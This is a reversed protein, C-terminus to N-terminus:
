GITEVGCPAPEFEVPFFGADSMMQDAKRGDDRCYLLVVGLGGAGMLKGGSVAAGARLDDYLDDPFCLNQVGSARKVCWHEHLLESWGALDGAELAAASAHGIEGIRRVNANHRAENAESDAVARIHSTRVQHGLRSKGNWYLRIHESVARALQGDPSIDRPVVTGDREFTLSQMGGLACLYQDQKGVNWKLRDMEVLCALEAIEAPVLEKGTLKLVAGLLAVLYASSSGVGAGIPADEAVTIQVGGNIGFERLVAQSVGDKLEAISPAQEGQFSRLEVKDNWPATAISVMVYRQIALGVAHGGFREYHSPFDTGGGGLTLRVPARATYIM